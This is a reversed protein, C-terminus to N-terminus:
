TVPLLLCPTVPLKRNWWTCIKCKGLVFNLSYLSLGYLQIWVLVGHVWALICCIYLSVWVFLEFTKYIAYTWHGRKTPCVRLVALSSPRESPTNSPSIVCHSHFRRHRLLSRILLDRHVVSPPPRVAPPPPSIRFAPPTPVCTISAKFGHWWQLGM